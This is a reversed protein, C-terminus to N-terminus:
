SRCRFSYMLLINLTINALHNVLGDTYGYIVKFEDNLHNGIFGFINFPFIAMFYLLRAFSIWFIYSRNFETDNIDFTKLIMLASQYIFFIILIPFTYSVKKESHYVFYNFYELVLLLIVILIGIVIELKRYSRWENFFWLFFILEIFLFGEFFWVSNYGSRVLVTETVQTLILFVSYVFFYKQNKDLYKFYYVGGISPLLISGWSLYYLVEWFM